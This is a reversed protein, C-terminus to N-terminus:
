PVDDSMITHPHDKWYVCPYRVLMPDGEFGLM